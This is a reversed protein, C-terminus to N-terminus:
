AEHSTKYDSQGRNKLPTAEPGEKDGELKNWPQEEGSALFLYAIIEIIYLFITVFFIIRWSGITPQFQLSSKTRRTQRVDDHTLKGVFIPVTIGPLTAVTNTFAMLIGALSL